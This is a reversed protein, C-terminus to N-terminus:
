GTQRVLKLHPYPIEIDARDFALKLRQLYARRVSWQQLPAVKFRCRIVVASDAWEEVGAIELDELIQELYFAEGRLARGAARMVDMVREIEEGYAVGIDMVAYAHGLSKNSVVSVASNPIFHVVGSYDRLRLYRLTLDEVIGERGAAEVMDGQRIQNELLLSIGTFYDKVLNQAGIGVALGLVGAAGLFPALSVGFQDLLQMGAVLVVLLKLIYRLMRSVTRVRRAEEPGDGRAAVAERLRPIVREIMSLALGALILILVVRAVGSMSLTLLWETLANQLPTLEPM